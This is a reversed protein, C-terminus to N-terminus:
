EHAITEDLILLQQALVILGPEVGCTSLDFPTKDQDLLEQQLTILRTLGLERELFARIAEARYSASDGDSVVPFRLERDKFLLAGQPQTETEEIEEHPRFALAERISDALERVSVAHSRVEVVSDHPSSGTGAWPAPGPDGSARRARAEAAVLMPDADLEAEIRAIMVDRDSSLGGLELARMRLRRNEIEIRQLELLRVRGDDNFRVVPPV